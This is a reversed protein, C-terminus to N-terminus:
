INCIENPRGYITDELNKRVIGNAKISLGALLLLFSHIDIPIM